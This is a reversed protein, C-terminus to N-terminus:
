IIRKLREQKQKFEIDWGKRRKKIGHLIEAVESESMKLIGLYRNVHNKRESGIRLIAESFSEDGHKLRKLIEYANETITLSKITM